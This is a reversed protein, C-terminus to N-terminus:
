QPADLLLEELTRLRKALDEMEEKPFLRILSEVTSSSGSKEVQDVSFAMASMRSLSSNAENVLSELQDPDGFIQGSDKGAVSRQARLVAM